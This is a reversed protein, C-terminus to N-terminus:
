VLAELLPIKHVLSPMFTPYIPAKPVKEKSRIPRTVMVVVAGAPRVTPPTPKRPGICPSRDRHPGRPLVVCPRACIPWVCCPYLTSKRYSCLWSKWPSELIWWVIPLCDGDNSMRPSYGPLSRRLPCLPSCERRMGCCSIKFPRCPRPRIRESGLGKYYGNRRLSRDFVPAYIKRVPGFSMPDM